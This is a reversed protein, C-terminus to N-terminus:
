GVCVGDSGLYMEDECFVCLNDKVYQGAGCEVCEGDELVQINSGEIISCDDFKPSHFGDPDVNRILTVAHAKLYYDSNM